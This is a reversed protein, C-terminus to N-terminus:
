LIQHKNL